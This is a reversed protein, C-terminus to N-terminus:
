WRAVELLPAAAPWPLVPGDTCVFLPGLQCHGCHGVACQMNRELSVHIHGADVGADLLRRAVAGMMVEPGCLFAAARSPDVALRSLVGTVLGVDGRWGPAAADVTVEVDLDFRGRWTALESAYLLDAPTRAGAVLAVRGFRDRDALVRRVVPRLPALGIGGGVVVLDLGEVQDLPWGVGFPGRAGLEQGAALGCLARTVAGAARITHRLTGDDAPCGSVSIPAEGVGFAYLMTFQGPEPAAIGSVGATAEDAEANEVPELDLTVVDATETHRETVRYPVPALLGPAPLPPRATMTARQGAPAAGDTPRNPSFPETTPPANATARQDGATSTSM